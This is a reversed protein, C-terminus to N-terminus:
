DMLIMKKTAAYNATRLQYYLLGSAGLDSGKIVLEHPGAGYYGEQNFLVQGSMDFVTIRADGAVPLKFGIVTKASFPNPRNQYLEYGALDIAGSATITAGVNLGVGLIEGQMNYAEVATPVSSVELLDSLSKVGRRARFTISFLQTEAEQPVVDMVNWSTTLWGDETRLLNFNGESLSPLAGVNLEVYELLDTDFRLTFQYGLIENMSSATFPVTFEEGEEITMEPVNLMLMSEPNREEIEGDYLSTTSASQDVDGVKIAVFNADMHDEELDNIQVEEPIPTAFPNNPNLFLHNADVFRWAPTNNPFVTEIGLILKRVAILDLTSINGSQNVDAAIMKYPTNLPQVGLIHRSIQIMDFTSVGNQAADNRQPKLSYDEGMPLDLMEFFGDVGTYIQGIPDDGRVEVMVDEVYQGSETSIDGAIIASATAQPCINNNDQIAVVTVCLDSNGSEDEAWFEVVQTGVDECTFTLQSTLPAQGPLGGGERQLTLKLGEPATCNDTTGGDFSVANLMAMPEGNMMSLNVSLGVICVPKPPSSDEVTITTSCTSVNGCRDSAFFQVETTGLPYYGSADDGAVDAFPSENTIFINTNCDNAEAPMLNVYTGNCDNDIGVTRGDPCNLVPAEDDEVKIIQVDSYRGEDNPNEPDYRCWDVVVWERLIKYCGPFAINYFEDTYNVGVQGCGLDILEPRDFGEPLDNPEVNAGCTTVTYDEPWIINDVSLPNQDEVTITQVCGNENGNADLATFTRRITGTGCESIDVEEELSVEFSCNDVVQAEGFISLDEYDVTCDIVTDVPCFVTPATKDQVTVRVMCESFHGFLDGGPIERTPTVPGAGPDLEYVRLIVQIEENVEECCVYVRDDFWEQYGGLDSDDGNFGDCGGTTMRRAKFYLEGACNDNSGDDFTLASVGSVGGSTLSVVTMDECVAYPPEQDIVNLTTNCARTNGCVDIATYRVTHTGVPVFPHPGTGVGGFTTSVFFTAEADCNDDVQPAPLTISAVCQGPNTSVTIPGPCTIQPAITDVVNILQVDTAMTGGCSEMVTWSRQVQYEINACVSLTDDEYTVTLACGNTNEIIEDFLTPQGTRDIDLDPVSCDLVTDAPFDIENFVPRALVVEQVCSSANGFSDVATWTRQLLAISSSDCGYTDFNDAYTLDVQDEGFCNDEVLPLGIEAVSTDMICSITDRECTLVPPLEDVPTIFSNCFVGTAVDTITVSLTDDYYLLPDFSVMGTDSVIINSQPDRVTIIKDGPCIIPMELIDEPTLVMECDEDIPMAVPVDPNGGRCALDCQQASLPQYIFLTLLLMFFVAFAKPWRNALRSKGLRANTLQKM